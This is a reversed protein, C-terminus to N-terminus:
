TVIDDKWKREEPPLDAQVEDIQSRERKAVVERDADEVPTQEGDRDEHNEDNDPDRDAGEDPVCCSDIHNTPVRRIRTSYLAESDPDAPASLARRPFSDTVPM